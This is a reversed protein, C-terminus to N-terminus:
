ISHSIQTYVFRPAITVTFMRIMQMIAIPFQANKQSISARKPNADRVRHHRHNATTTAIRHSFHAPQVFLRCRKRTMRHHRHSHCDVSAIAIAAAAARITSVICRFTPHHNRPHAARMAMITPLTISQLKQKSVVPTQPCRHRHKAMRKWNLVPSFRRRGIKRKCRDFCFLNFYNFNCIILQTM